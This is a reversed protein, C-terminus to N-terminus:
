ETNASDSMSRPSVHTIRAGKLKILMELQISEITGSVTVLDRGKVLGMGPYDKVGIVFCIGGVRMGDVGLLVDIKDKATRNAHVLPGTWEVRVGLYHRELEPRQLPPADHINRLVDVPLLNEAPLFVVDDSHKLREQELSAKLPEPM